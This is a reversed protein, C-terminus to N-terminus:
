QWSPLLYTGARYSLGRNQRPPIHPGMGQRPLIDQVSIRYPHGSSIEQASRSLIKESAKGSLNSIRYILSTREQRRLMDAQVSSSTICTFFVTLLSARTLSAAKQVASFFAATSFGPLIHWLHFPQFLQLQRDAVLHRSASIPCSAM